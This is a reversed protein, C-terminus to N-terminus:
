EIDELYEIMEVQAHGDGIREAALIGERLWQRAEDLRDLDTLMQGAMFYAVAYDPHRKKLEIFHQLAEEYRELKRYELALGYRCFDDDPEQEVMELLQDLRSIESM